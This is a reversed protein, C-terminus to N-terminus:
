RNRLRQRLAQTLRRRREREREAYVVKDWGAAPFGKQFCPRL